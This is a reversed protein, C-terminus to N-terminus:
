FIILRAFAHCSLHRLSLCETGWSVYAADTMAALLLILSGVAPVTREGDDPVVGGLKWRRAAQLVADDPGPIWGPVLGAFIRLIHKIGRAGFRICQPVVISCVGAVVSHHVLRQRYTYEKNAKM